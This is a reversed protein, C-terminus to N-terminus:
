AKFFDPNARLFEEFTRPQRALAKRVAQQEASTEKHIYYGYQMAYRSDKFDAVVHPPMGSAEAAALYAEVPTPDITLKIGRVRSLIDAAQPHSLRESYTYIAHDGGKRYEPTEIAYRVFLGYDHETDIYPMPTDDGAMPNDWVYSGDDLKRPQFLPTALNTIYYGAQVDVTPLQTRAYATVEAKGDFHAVNTYKGDTNRTVNELGSWVFLKAGVAKAADVMLKGEAVEREKITHEWFNTVAFIVEAGEFAKRVAAENGVTIDVSVVEVGLEKLKLAAPKSADRTLGRLRYPKNSEILNRIVSGGQLGTSGVVVVLPTSSNASVTM